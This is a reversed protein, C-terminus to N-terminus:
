IAEHILIIFNSGKTYDGKIRDEVWIKGSYRDIIKKVLSLGLGLGGNSSKEKSGRQFIHEKRLDEIGNGNDIFEMKLYKHDKIEKRSITIEINVKLKSNHRVSNLLLNEFVDLLLENAIATFIDKNYNFKFSIKRNQFSQNIFKVSEKIMSNVNIQQLTFKSEHLTSLKRVNSILKSGRSVQEKVIGYLEKVTNSKEPNNLYMSSLELSSQINQLINNIDHAFIDKYLNAQDYAERLKNEAKKRETIDRNITVMGINNGLVDKIISSSSLINIKKGNKHYQIGEGSWFGISLFESIVDDNTTNVFDVPITEAITKGIVEEATWGYIKEAAKNWSLINFEMDLSLIADSVNDVLKAQYEIKEEAKKRETTDRSIGFLVDRNGWKGKTVKTEVPILTGDKTILPIPCFECGGKLMEGIITAAEERLEPPHVMLASEGILEEKKYKLRKLVVPNVDIINSDSNLIFLFDDISDFLTQLNMQSAKQAEQAQMKAVLTGTERGIAQLVEKEFKSFSYRSKSAINLAGIVKNKAFFPISALSLIGWKISNEPDLEQYNDTFIPQGKIFIIDRPSEDIKINKIKEIFSIPLGKHCFLEAMYPTVSLLYIGGGEFNMLELTNKLIRKMLLSFDSAKNADTIVQNLIEMKRSNDKIRKEMQIRETIDRSIGFLVDRDGWKGITVKTEVPILIGNKSILPVSCVERKGEIMDTIVATATEHQDPPHVMLITNGILEVKTYKLKKLVISNVYLIKAEFDLVFIYDEM